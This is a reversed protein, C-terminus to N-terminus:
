ISQTKRKFQDIILGNSCFIDALTQVLNPHGDLVASATTEGRCVRNLYNIGAAARGHWSLRLVRVQAAGERVVREQHSGM